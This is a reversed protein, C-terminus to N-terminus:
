FDKPLYEKVQSWIDDCYAQKIQSKFPSIFEGGNMEILKNLIYSFPIMSRRTTNVDQQYQKLAQNFIKLQKSLKDFGATTKSNTTLKIIIAKRCLHFTSNTNAWIKLCKPHHLQNCSLICANDSEILDLCISCNLDNPVKINDCIKTNECTKTDKDCVKTDKCLFAITPIYEFYKYWKNEKLITKIDDETIQGTLNKKVQDIVYQPIRYVYKEPNLRLNLLSKFHAERTYTYRKSM